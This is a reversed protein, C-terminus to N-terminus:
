MFWLWWEVNDPKRRVVLSRYLGGQAMGQDSPSAHPHPVFTIVANIPELAVTIWETALDFLPQETMVGPALYHKGVPVGDTAAPLLPVALGSQPHPGFLVPLRIVDDEELLGLEPLFAAYVPELAEGLNVNFATLEEDVQEGFIALALTPDALLLRFGKGCCGPDGSYPVWSMIESVRRSHLTTTDVQVPTGQLGQRELLALLAALAGDEGPLSTGAYLRGYPLYMEGALLVPSSEVNSLDLPAGGQLGLPSVGPALLQSALAEVAGVDGSLLALNLVVHGGARPMIMLALELSDALFAPEPGDLAVASFGLESAALLGQIDAALSAPEGTSDVGFYGEKVPQLASTLLVPAVHLEVRDTALETGDSAVATAEITVVRASADDSYLLAVDRGEFGLIVPDDRLSAAPLEVPWELLTWHDAQWRFLRGLEVNIGSLTVQSAEPLWPAPALYLPALDAADEPGNVVEDLADALGDQDDDDLNLLFVAGGKLSWSEELTEDDPDAFSVKGDRDADSALNIVGEPCEMVENQDSLEFDMDPTLLEVLEPSDVQSRDPTADVPQAVLDPQGGDVVDSGRGTPGCAATLVVCAITVIAKM